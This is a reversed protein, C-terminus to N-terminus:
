DGNTSQNASLSPVPLAELADDLAKRCLHEDGLQEFLLLVLRALFLSERETGAETIARACDAYLRDRADPTMTTRNM